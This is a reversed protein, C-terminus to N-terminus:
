ARKSSTYVAAALTASFATAGIAGLTPRLVESIQDASASPSAAVATAALLLVAVATGPAGRLRGVAATMTAVGRIEDASSLQLRDPDCGLVGPNQTLVKSVEDKNALVDVLVRYSGRINDTSSAWPLLLAKNNKVADIAADESPYCERLARWLPLVAPDQLAVAPLMARVRVPLSSSQMFVPVVVLLAALM